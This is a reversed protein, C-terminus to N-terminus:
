LSYKHFYRNIISPSTEHSLVVISGGHQKRKVDGPVALLCVLHVQILRRVLRISGTSKEGRVSSMDLCLGLVLM